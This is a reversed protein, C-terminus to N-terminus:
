KKAKKMALEKQLEKSRKLGATIQGASMKKAIIALNRRADEDTTSVLHWYAFAEIEDKTVGEGNYYRGGLNFLAEAHGQEAAKRYWKLAQVFDQPVGEGEAYCKGLNNQAEADGQEAAKRFRTLSETHFEDLSKAAEAHGQEAAKRYWKAAEFANMAVGAGDRYCVGLNYQASAHGQDAAKRYWAAAQVFDKAV